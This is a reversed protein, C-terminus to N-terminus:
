LVMSDGVDVGSDVVKEELQVARQARGYADHYFAVQDDKEM